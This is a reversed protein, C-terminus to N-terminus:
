EKINDVERVIIDVGVRLFRAIYLDIASVIISFIFHSFCRDGMILSQLQNPRLIEDSIHTEPKLLRFSRFGVFLSRRKYANGAM